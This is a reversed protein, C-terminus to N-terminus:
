RLAQMVALSVMKDWCKECVHFPDRAYNKSRSDPVKVQYMDEPADEAGCDQCKDM